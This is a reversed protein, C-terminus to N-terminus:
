KSKSERTQTGTARRNVRVCRYRKDDRIEHASLKDLDSFNKMVHLKIQQYGAHNPKDLNKEFYISIFIRESVQLLRTMVSKLPKRM